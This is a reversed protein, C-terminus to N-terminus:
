SFMDEIDEFTTEIQKELSHVISTEKELLIKLRNIIVRLNKVSFIQWQVDEILAEIIESINGLLEIKQNSRHFKKLNSHLLVKVRLIKNYKDKIILVDRAISRTIEKFKGRRTFAM